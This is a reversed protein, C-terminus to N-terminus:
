KELIDEAEKRFYKAADSPTTKEYIIEDYLNELLEHVEGAGSPDPPGMPSSNEEAWEVYEFITEQTDSIEPLLAEKVKSSGPVGREGLILKNAEIDNVFFDIFKAAAKKHKSNETISFYMSPKLFLGESINPGPMPHMEMPRGVNQQLGDLFSSWHFIGVGEEKVVPSEETGTLQDLYDPTPTAGAEVREKLMSFFDIFMQDDEYGLGSGDEAYLREGQTRLYYDFNINGALGTDFYLGQDAASNSIEVYDDWTWDEPLADLGIEELMTPDFMFGQVNVGTNFGYIGDDIQGGSVFNENIHSIDIEEDLFPTLDTLINKQAYETIYSVDMQVVDPLEKATAQPALKQWYDDWSSFESEVKIHPYQDMFLNIVEQTYDHRNKEGWWAIRLTIEENEEDVDGAESKESDDGNCATLWVLMLLGIFLFTSKKM